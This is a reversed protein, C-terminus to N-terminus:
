CPPWCCCCAPPRRGARLDWRPSARAIGLSGLMADTFSAEDWPGDYRLGNIFFTPTYRVGSAHSSAIDADVRAKATPEDAEAQEPETKTSGCIGAGRGAPRRRHAHALADHAGRARELITPRRPRSSWSPPAARSSAARHDPSPSVCLAANASSNACRPSAGTRPEATRATTAAMNWWRSRRPAAGIVHDRASDVPRDLRNNM